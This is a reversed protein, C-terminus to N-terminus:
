RGKFGEGKPTKYIKVPSTPGYGKSNRAQVKFYYTTDPTLDTITLSLKEGLVGEVVWDLDNKTSDTTYFVLYGSFYFFDRINYQQKYNWSLNPMLLSRYKKEEGRSFTLKFFKWM